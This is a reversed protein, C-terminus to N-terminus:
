HQFREQIESESVLQFGPNNNPSFSTIAWRVIRYSYYSKVHLYFSVSSQWNLRAFSASVLVLFFLLDARKKDYIV